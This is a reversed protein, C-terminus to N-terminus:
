FERERERKRKAFHFKKHLYDRIIMTIMVIM